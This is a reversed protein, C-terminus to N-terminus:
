VFFRYPYIAPILWRAVLSVIQDRHVTTFNDPMVILGSRPEHALDQLTHEIEASSRVEAKTAKVAFASAANDFSRVYERALAGHAVTDPNYLLGVRSLEPTIQKLITLLKGPITPNLNTFGTVNGGPRAISIAFGSGVPDAVVVSVIPITRTARFLETVVPTSHGVIVDPQLAVLQNALAQMRDADGAAFRYEVRVDQGITWGQKTLSENFATIRTQAEVDDALGVLFGVVRMRGSPQAGPMATWLAATGGLVALARRRNIEIVM